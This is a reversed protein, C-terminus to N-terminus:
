QLRGHPAEVHRNSIAAAPEHPHAWRHPQPPRCFAMLISALIFFGLFLIFALRYSGTVDFIVNIFVPGSASFAVLFPVATSRVTGLTLRGFYNAWVVEQVVGAGAFGAGYIIVALWLVGINSASLFCICSIAQILFPGIRIIPTYARESLFGWLPSALVMVLARVSLSAAAVATSFGLDTVYPALGINIGQFALNALSFSIVLLWFASTKMVERRTWIPELDSTVSRADVSSERTPEVEIPNPKPSDGDPLLGMDEPRRRMLVASPVLVVVWTLLAFVLFSSRWGWTLIIWVTIPALAMNALSTGTSAFAIARGRRRIFWNSIATNTILYGMFAFGAAMIIGRVLYFQWLTTVQTVALFALGTAVGGVVMLPRPGHRDILPGLFPAVLGEVVRALSQVASVSTRNWGFEEKLPNFFLGLLSSNHEAYAIHALFSAIVINWGYFYRPRNPTEPM